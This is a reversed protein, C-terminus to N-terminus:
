HDTNEPFHVVPPPNQFTMGDVRGACGHSKSM